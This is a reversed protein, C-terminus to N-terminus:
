QGAALKRAKDIAADSALCHIAAVRYHMQELYTKLAPGNLVLGTSLTVSSKRQYIDKLKAYRVTWYEVYPEWDGKHKRNVYGAISKHTRYKWWKVDPIPGCQTKLVWGYGLVEEIPRSSWKEEQPPPLVAIKQLKSRSAVENALCLHVATRQVIKPIYLGLDEYALVIKDEKVAGKRQVEGRGLGAKSKPVVVGKGQEFANIVRNLHKEWTAIYLSWNGGHKRNVYEILKKHSTNSWWSVKPIQPCRSKEAALGDKFTFVTASTGITLLLIAIVVQKM